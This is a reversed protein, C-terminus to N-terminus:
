KSSLILHYTNLLDSVVKDKSHRNLANSRANKGLMKSFQQDKFLELVGSALATSDGIQVLIGDIRHKLISNTGGANTAICPMGLLMAECLANSSNEINSPMVFCDAKLMQILLNEESLKGLFKINNTPFKKGFKKKVIKVILDNESVGAVNWTCNYGLNILVLVV